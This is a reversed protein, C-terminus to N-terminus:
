TNMQSVTLVRTGQRELYEGANQNIKYNQLGM